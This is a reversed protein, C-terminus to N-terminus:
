GRDILRRWRSRTSGPPRPPLPEDALIASPVTDTLWQQLATTAPPGGSAAFALRLAPARKVPDHADSSLNHVLGRELLRGAFRRVTQGFQGAISGASMSCAVGADILRELRAMDRQFEPCREPHALIPRFGRVRLDFMADEILAGTYTYPSEVLAWSSDGLCLSRLQADDLGPLRPVAIEAGPLVSISLGEDVLAARLDFVSEAIAQSDTNYELDVHPTAVITHIGERLAVQAMQLSEAMDAPGDDIAPLLHCHLDIM